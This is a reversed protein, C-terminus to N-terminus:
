QKMLEAYLAERDEAEELEKAHASEIASDPPLSSFDASPWALAVTQPGKAGGMLAGGFGFAKRLIVSFVPVNAWALACAAALGYKLSGQREADPGTMVGPTDVLSVLPLHYANCYDIFKRAKQGEAGSM